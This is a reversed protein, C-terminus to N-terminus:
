IPPKRSHWPTAQEYAHAVRLVTAEDFPRGAIQLALPLGGEGQSTFGCLMSLAPAGALSYGILADVALEGSLKPETGAVRIDTDMAQLIGLQMAPVGRHEEAPRTLWVTVDAGWNTLRRACM